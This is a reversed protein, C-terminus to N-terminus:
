DRGADAQRTGFVRRWARGPLSTAWSWAAAWNAKVRRWLEFATTAAVFGSVWDDVVIPLNPVEVYGGTVLLILVLWVWHRRSIWDEFEARFRIRTESDGKQEVKAM